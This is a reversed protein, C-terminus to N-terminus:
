TLREFNATSAVASFLSLLTTRIIASKHGFISESKGKEVIFVMKNSRKEGRGM